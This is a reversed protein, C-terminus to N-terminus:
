APRSEERLGERIGQPILTEQEGAQVSGPFPLAGLVTQTAAKGQSM